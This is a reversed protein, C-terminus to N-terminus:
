KQVFKRTLLVRRLGGAARTVEAVEPQYRGYRRAVLQTDHHGLQRALIHGFVRLHVPCNSCGLALFPEPENGAVVM